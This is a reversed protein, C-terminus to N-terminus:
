RDLSSKHKVMIALRNKKLADHRTNNAGKPVKTADDETEHESELCVIVAFGKPDHPHYRNCEINQNNRDRYGGQSFSSIILLSFFYFITHNANHMYYDQKIYRPFYVTTMSM